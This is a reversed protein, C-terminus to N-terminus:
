KLVEELWRVPNEAKITLLKKNRNAVKLLQDDTTLFVDVKAVEASALHITDYSDFGSREFDEARKLIKANVEVLNKIQSALLLVQQRVEVNPNRNIEYLVMESGVWEWKRSSFNELVLLVAQTELRVRPQSQDDFPRNLCCVDLYVRM